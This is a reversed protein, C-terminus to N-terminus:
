HTSIVSLLDAKELLDWAHRNTNEDCYVAKEQILRQNVIEFTAGPLMARSIYALSGLIEVWQEHSGQHTDIELKERLEDIKASQGALLQEKGSSREYFDLVETDKRDISRLLALLGPSFPGKFNWSYDFDGIEVGAVKLLYCMKQTEVHMRTNNEEGSHTSYRNGYFREYAALTKKQNFSLTAMLIGGDVNIVNFLIDM